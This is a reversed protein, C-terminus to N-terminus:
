AASIKTETEEPEAKGNDMTPEVMGLMPGIFYHLLCLVALVAYAVAALPLAHVRDGLEGAADRSGGGDVVLDPAPDLLSAERFPFSAALAILTVHARGADRHRRAAAVRPSHGGRAGHQEARRCRRAIADM